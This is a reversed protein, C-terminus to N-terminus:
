LSLLGSGLDQFSNKASASLTGVMLPAEANDIATTGIVNEEGM